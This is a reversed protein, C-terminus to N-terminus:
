GALTPEGHEDVDADATTRTSPCSSRGRRHPTPRGPRRELTGRQLDSPTSPRRRRGVPSRPPPPARRSSASRDGDWSRRVPRPTSATATSTPPPPRRHVGQAARRRQGHAARVDAGGGRRRRGQGAQAHPPAPGDHDRGAPRRGDRRPGQLAAATQKLRRGKKELGRARPAARRRLVHLDVEAKRSGAAVVDVRHLPPVAAFVRGADVLEPMYKFFLTLLLTRIHAGDTDADTMIVIRGYRASALDFTRGSGAGIVQIIAACETNSLMDAISAKQVNLIKGRIPLLAQFESNRALKATGLASDGEVIFLESRETDTSRCDALKAPLSSTELANKRRQTEKHLRASLRAKMESVVKDLVALSQQKEGRPPNTLRAELEREVVRAVIGRVAPTGLVEKTQGEFQPEALRVTLVATMGALIDDKDPRDSGTKLKRASAEVVKRFTKVLAQEFGALHTGGKTTAIVNVFSASRRRTGPGGACRSTSPASASSSARPSSGPRTSCRCPRRSSARATCAGCTPSRRTPPWTSWSSPSAATTVSTTPGRSAAIPRRDPHAAGPVLFATQRAHTLLEDYSVDAEALFVERDPWFRIRTGTSAASRTKGIVRLESADTFPEFPADPRPGRRDDAFDGPEGHRFSMAYTKGGRDVEVDLRAALANVVSAGVGHLGVPRPTRAAM